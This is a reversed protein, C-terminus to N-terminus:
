DDEEDLQKRLMKAYENYTKISALDNWDMQKHKEALAAYYEQRTM